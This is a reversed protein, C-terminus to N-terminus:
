RLGGPRGLTIRARRPAPKSHDFAGTEIFRRSQKFVDPSHIMEVHAEHLVLTDRAGDIIGSRVPVVGDDAGPIFPSLFPYNSRDGMIIGVPFRPPRLTEPMGDSSTNLSAAAPGILRVSSDMKRDIIDALETGHLPAAIFVCRGLNSPPHDQLFRHTLVGGLSHAVFHLPKDLHTNEREVTKALYDHVLQDGDLKRSPYRVLIVRYGAHNFQRAMWDMGGFAWWRLGHVVVVTDGPGEFVKTTERQQLLTGCSTGCLMLAGAM